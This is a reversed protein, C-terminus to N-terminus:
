NEAQRTEAYYTWHRRDMYPKPDIAKGDHYISYHLHTGTSRGTSGMYGILQGPKVSSNPAIALQSLHGYLTEYNQESKILVHYGYGGDYGAREAKGAVTAFIPTGESGLIDIGDHGEYGGTGFPNPRVGFDSSVWFEGQVPNGKPTAQVTRAERELTQELAPRTQHQLVKALRPLKSKALNIQEVAPITTPVGGRGEVSPLVAKELNQTASMRPLGARRNLVEIEQNLVEIQSVVEQTTSALARNQQYYRYAIGLGGAAPIACLALLAMAKAKSRLLLRLMLREDRSLIGLGYIAEKLPNSKSTM